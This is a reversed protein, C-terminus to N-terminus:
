PVGISSGKLGLGSDALMGLGLSVPMLMDRARVEM